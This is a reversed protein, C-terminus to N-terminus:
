TSANDLAPAQWTAPESLMRLGKVEFETIRYTVTEMRQWITPSKSDLVTVRRAASPSWADFSSVTKSVTHADTLSVFSFQDAMASTVALSCAMCGMLLRSPM